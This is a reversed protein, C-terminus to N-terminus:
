NGDPIKLSDLASAKLKFNFNLIKLSLQIKCKSFQLNTNNQADYNSM